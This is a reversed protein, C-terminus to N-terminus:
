RPLARKGEHYTEIEWSAPSERFFAAEYKEGDSTNGLAFSCNALTALVWRRDSREAFSPSQAVEILLELLTARVKRATMRDYQAESSDVQIAARFDYCTALNEGNYYDRRVEFGRGYYKIAADLQIADRTELWLRKRIAGTIGLTEPDNSHDPDLQDIIRLGNILAELKSPKGSKYTALALQQLVYPEGPKMEAAAGFARVADDFRSERLANEAESMYGSLREQIAETDDLLDAYEEKSLRPQQLKPLFTYVPSDPKQAAMVEAILQKLDRKARAAERAGIDKGLHEYQFTNTHSLDFYLRGDQEKMILTSNPRLAHRVGLEYVANVNGTSIDAIVLDARLLMEYMESDIVGSHMIEDARICRLNQETAAPLIIAQYTADLDLTRGTEYDTKKGFGMIVFCVRRSDKTV